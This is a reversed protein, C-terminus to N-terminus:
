LWFGVHLGGALGHASHESVFGQYGLSGGLTLSRELRKDLSLGADVTFAHDLDRRSPLAAYGAHAYVSPEIFATIGFRFGLVARASAAIEPPYFAGTLSLEPMVLFPYTDFAYGFTAALGPGAFVPRSFADSGFMVEGRPELEIKPEASAVGARVLALSGVVAALFRARSRHQM